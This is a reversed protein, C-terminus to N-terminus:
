NILLKYTESKNLDEFKIKIYYLGPQTNTLSIEICSNEFSDSFIIKGLNNIIEVNTKEIRCLDIVVYDSAPNPFISEVNSEETINKSEITQIENDSIKNRLNGNGSAIIRNVPYNEVIKSYVKRINKKNKSKMQFYIM